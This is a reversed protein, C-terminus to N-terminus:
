DIGMHVVETAVGNQFVITWQDGDHGNDFRYVLPTDTGQVMKEGYDSVTVPDGLM